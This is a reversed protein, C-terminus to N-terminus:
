FISNLKGKLKNEIEKIGYPRNLYYATLLYYSSLDNQVELVIVYKDKRNYIYTKYVNKRKRKDREETSFIILGKINESIHAKIWHLRKSRDKEYERKYHSFTGDENYCEKNETTLHRFNRDIDIVNDTKIPYIRKKKFKCNDDYPIDRDYILRLSKQIDGYKMFLDLLDPYYKTLNRAPM